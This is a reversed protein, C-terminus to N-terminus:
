ELDFWRINGGYMQITHQEGEKGAGVKVDIM